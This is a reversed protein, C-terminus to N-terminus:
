LSDALRLVHCIYDREQSRVLRAPDGTGTDGNVTSGLKLLLSVHLKSPHERPMPSLIVNRSKPIYNAPAQWEYIKVVIRFAAWRWLEKRV